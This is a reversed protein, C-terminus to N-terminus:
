DTNLFDVKTIPRAPNPPRAIRAPSMFRIEAIIKIVLVDMDPRELVMNVSATAVIIVPVNIMALKLANALPLISAIQSKPPLMRKSLRYPRMM